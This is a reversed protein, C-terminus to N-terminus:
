FESSFLSGESPNCCFLYLYCLFDYNAPAFLLSFIAALGIFYFEKGLLFLHLLLKDFFLGL